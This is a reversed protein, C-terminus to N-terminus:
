QWCSHSVWKTINRETNKLISLARLSFFSLMVFCVQRVLRAQLCFGSVVSKKLVFGFPQVDKGFRNVHKKEAGEHKDATNNDKYTNSAIYTCANGDSNPNTNASQILV